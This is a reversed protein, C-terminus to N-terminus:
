DKPLQKLIEKATAAENSNPALAVFRELHSRADATAGENVYAMGLYYHALPQNPDIAVVKLFRQKATPLDSADYAEFALALLGKAAIAPEVAALGALADSLRAKDGLRLCANYRLRLAQENSPDGKLVAEAATASEANRGLALAATAMGILAPQLNPDIKLAEEFKAFAGANDGTKVLAVAENHIKRAQETAKGASELDKLAEATRAEDKLNRYAQWRATLLAEDKLGLAMAKDAADVAEQNRGTQVQVSALAAWGRALKPDHTVAEKFKSEATAYDKLAVASVGANYAIVAPASMSAPAGVAGPAAVSAPGLTWQFHETGELLWRQDVDLTAYGAKDFRYHYVINVEDFDITFTGRKDTKVTHGFNPLQQATVTVTVDAIPKGDGDVIKGILRGKRQALALGPVLFFLILLWAATRCSSPM